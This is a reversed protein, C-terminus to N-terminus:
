SLSLDVTYKITATSIGGYLTFFLTRKTRQSSFSYLSLINKTTLIMNYVYILQKSLVGANITLDPPVHIYDILSFPNILRIKLEVGLRLQPSFLEIVYYKRLQQGIVIKKGEISSYRCKSLPILYGQHLRNSSCIFVVHFLKVNMTGHM